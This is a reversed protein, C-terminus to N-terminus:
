VRIYNFDSIAFRFPGGGGGCRPMKSKPWYWDRMWMYTFSKLYLILWIHGIKYMCPFYQTCYLFVMYRTFNHLFVTTVTIRPGQNPPYLRSQCLTRSTRCLSAPRYSLGIGSDVIDELWTRLIQSCTFIRHDGRGRCRTLFTHWVVLMKGPFKM